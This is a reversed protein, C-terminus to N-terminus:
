KKRQKKISPARKKNQKAKIQEYLWPVSLGTGIFTGVLGFLNIQGISILPQTV